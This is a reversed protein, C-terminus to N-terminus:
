SIVTYETSQVSYLIKLPNDFPNFTVTEDKSKQESM